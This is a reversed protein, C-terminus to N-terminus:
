PTDEELFQNIVQQLLKWEECKEQYFARGSPTITYYTRKRGMTETGQYSTVYGLRELRNFASYLTTERMAYAGGSREQINRSIEYGYSDGHMLLSLILTDNYGRMVDSSLM